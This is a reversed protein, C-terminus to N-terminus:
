SEHVLATALCETAVPCSRCPSLADASPLEGDDPFYADFGSPFDACAAREDWRRSTTAFDSVLAVLRSEDVLPIPNM